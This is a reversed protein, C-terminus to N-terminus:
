AIHLGEHSVEHRGENKRSSEEPATATIRDDDDLEMGLIGIDDIHGRVVVDILGTYTGRHPASM